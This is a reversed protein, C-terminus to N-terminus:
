HDYANLIIDACLILIKHNPHAPDPDHRRHGPESTFSLQGGKKSQQSSVLGPLVFHDIALAGLYFPKLLM